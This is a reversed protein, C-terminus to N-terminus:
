NGEVDTREYQVGSAINAFFPSKASPTTEEGFERLTQRITRIAPITSRTARLNNVKMYLRANDDRELQLEEELEAVSKRRM